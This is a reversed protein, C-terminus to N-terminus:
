REQKKLLLAGLVTLLPVALLLPLFSAQLDVFGLSKSFAGRTITLFHTTPYLKGILAAIQSRM